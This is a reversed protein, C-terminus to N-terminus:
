QSIFKNNNDSKKENKRNFDRLSSMKNKHNKRFDFNHKKGKIIQEKYGELTKIPIGILNAADNSSMKIKTNEKIKLWKSVKFVSYGITREKDRRSNKNIDNDKIDEEQEKEELNINNSIEEGMKELFKCKISNPKILKQRLNLYITFDKPVEINYNRKNNIQKIDIEGYYIYSKIKNKKIYGNTIYSINNNFSKYVESDSESEYYKNNIDNEKKEDNNISYSLIYNSNFNEDFNSFLSKILDNIDFYNIGTEENKEISIPLFFEFIDNHYSFSLIVRLQIINSNINNKEKNKLYFSKPLNFKELILHNKEKIEKKSIDQNINFPNKEM